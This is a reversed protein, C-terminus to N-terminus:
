INILNPNVIMKKVFEKIKILYKFNLILFCTISIFFMFSPVKFISFILSMLFPILLNTPFVYKALSFVNKPLKLIQAGKLAIMFVFFLYSFMTALITYYFNVNFFELLTIALLVNIVLALFSIYSLQKEKEKAILLGTLGFSNTYLVISLAILRFAHISEGYKPYFNILLPFLLIFLHILFHSSVMYLNRVDNLTKRAQEISYSSFRNILKPFILFSFSQLLLLAVNAFTFAFTFYGFDSVSYYSSVFTRTSIIILYFCSNYIFLYWGKIQVKKMMRFIFLFNLKYDSRLLYIFFSFLISSLYAILLSDILKEGKFFLITILIFLPLSSQNIAIELIKGQVRFITSFLSNFNGFIGILLVYFSYKKFSYKNGIQFDIFYDLMFFLFLIASLLLLITFSTSIVKEVYWEKKKHISIIANIAPPIGLNLQNLYQIMLNLFGWVGLYYPGLYFAILLSNVFQIFYTFYRSLIYLMVGNKFFSKLLKNM